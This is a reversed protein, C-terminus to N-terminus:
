LSVKNYTGLKSIETIFEDVNNVNPLSINGISITRTDSNNTIPSVLSSPSKAISMLNKTLDTPIVGDGKNLVRLEPGNEGVLSVGGKASTTGKAYSGGSENISIDIIKSNLESIAKDISEFELREEELIKMYDNETKIREEIKEKINGKSLLWLKYLNSSEFQQQKAKTYKDLINAREEEYESIKQTAAENTAIINEQTQQEQLNKLEKVYDAAKTLYEAFETDLLDGFEDFLNQWGNVITGDTLLENFENVFKEARTLAYEYKYESLADISENLKDQASQVGGVDEEYVFGRGTRFVQVRKSKAKALNERAEEVALLKDQLQKEEKDQEIKEKNLDILNNLSYYLDNLSSTTKDIQKQYEVLKESTVELSSTYKDNVDIGKEEEQVLTNAIAGITAITAILSVVGAIKSPSKILWILSFVTTLLPIILKLAKGFEGLANPAQLLSNVLSLVFEAGKTLSEILGSAEISMVFETVATKVKQINAALSEQYIAYKETATGASNLSVEELALARDYNNLLVLLRDRQRVGALATAIESKQATNLTDWKESVEQLVDGTNKLDGDFGRITIGYQQLARDVDSISEGEEDFLAGINVKQMRAFITKFFNGVTEDSEQSVEKVAAIYGFLKDMGVGALNASSATKSMAIALGEASVSAAMDVSSLKDVVSLMESASLNYANMAAILYTTADTNEMAGIKSLILSDRILENTDAVSKGARLYDEAADTVDELSVSLEGAMDIYTQRMTNLEANTANTVIQLNTFATDLEVTQQVLKKIANIIGYWSVTAISWIAFKEYATRLMEGFTMVHKGADSIDQGIQKFAKKKEFEDTLKNAEILRNNFQGLKEETLQGNSSMQKLRANMNELNEANKKTISVNESFEKKLNGFAVQGRVGTENLGKLKTNLKDYTEASIAGSEKAVDLQAQFKEYAMSNTEITGVIEDNGDSVTKTARGLEDLAVTVKKIAEGEANFTNITKVLSDSSVDSTKLGGSSDKNLSSDIKNSQTGVKINQIAKLGSQDIEVKLKITNIKNQSVLLDLSKNISKEDVEGSLNIIFDNEAM